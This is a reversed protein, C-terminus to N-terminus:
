LLVNYYKFKSFIKLKLAPFKWKIGYVDIQVAKFEKGQGGAIYM